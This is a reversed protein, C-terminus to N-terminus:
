EDAEKSRRGAAAARFFSLATRGYRASRIRTLNEVHEPMDEQAEHEVVVLGGPAVLRPRWSGCRLPAWRERDYPPDVFVLDFAAGEAASGPLARVVDGPWSRPSGRFAPQELNARLAAPRPRGSSSLAGVAAGRSLAEIGAAGSGAFLDLVRAGPVDAAIINFLAEKVRDATPRTDRGPARPLRMGRRSGGIVRMTVGGAARGAFRRHRFASSWWDVSVCAVGRGAGAAPCCRRAAEDVAELVRVHAALALPSM